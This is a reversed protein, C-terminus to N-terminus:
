LFPVLLRILDAQESDHLSAKAFDWARQTWVAHYRAPLPLFALLWLNLRDEFMLIINLLQGM